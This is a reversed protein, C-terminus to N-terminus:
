SITQAHDKRFVPVWKKWIMSWGQKQADQRGLPVFDGPNRDIRRRAAEVTALWDERSLRPENEEPLEQALGPGSTLVISGLIVISNRFRTL